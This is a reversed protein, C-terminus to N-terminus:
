PPPMVRWIAKRAQAPVMGPDGVRRASANSCSTCTAASRLPSAPISATSVSISQRAGSSASVLNSTVTPACATLALAALAPAIWFARRM